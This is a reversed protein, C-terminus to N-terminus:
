SKEKSKSMFSSDLRWGLDLTTVGQTNLTFYNDGKSSM